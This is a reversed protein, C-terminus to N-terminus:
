RGRRAAPPSPAFCKHSCRWAGDTSGSSCGLDAWWSASASSASPDVSRGLVLIGTVTVGASGLAAVASLARAGTVWCDEVVLARRGAVRSEDAAVFAGPSPELHNTPGSPILRVLDLASLAGVGAILAELPHRGIARAHPRSTPVVCCADFGGTAERLCRGHIALFREAEAALVSAFHRRAVVVPSDKYRRLCLSWPDGPGFVAIPLVHPVSAPMEGLAACVKRCCWCFESGARSPGRCIECVFPGPLPSRVIAIGEATRVREPVNM